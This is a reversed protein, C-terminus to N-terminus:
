EDGPISVHKFACNGASALKATTPEQYLYEPVWSQLRRRVLADEVPRSGDRWAELQEVLDIAVPRARAVRLKPHPTARTQEADALLEEYLKEGPRLGSFEIRIEHESFGSLRIM